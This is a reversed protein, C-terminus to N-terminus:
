SVWSGPKGVDATDEEDEEDEEDEVVAEFRECLRQLRQDNKVYKNKKPSPSSGGEIIDTKAVCYNEEERLQEIVKYINPHHKGVAKMRGFSAERQLTYLHGNLLM